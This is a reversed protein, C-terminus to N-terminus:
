KEFFIIDSSNFFNSFNFFNSVITKCRFCGHVNGRENSNDKVELRDFVAIVERVEKDEGDDM